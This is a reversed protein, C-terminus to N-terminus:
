FRLLVHSSGDLGTKRFDVHAIDRVRASIARQDAHHRRAYTSGVQVLIELAVLRLRQWVAVFDSALHHRQGPGVGARNADAIQDGYVGDTMPLRASRAHQTLGPLSEMTEIPVSRRRQTAGEGLEDLSARGSQEPKRGTHGGFLTREDLRQRNPDV